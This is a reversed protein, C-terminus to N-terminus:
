IEWKSSIKRCYEEHQQIVTTDDGNAVAKELECIIEMKDGYAASKKTQLADFVSTVQNPYIVFTNEPINSVDRLISTGYFVVVSYFPIDKNKHFRQKLAQIHGDNQKVPNYFRHKERGYALVQTWQEQNGKGFIWGSYDKVEFVIIGAKTAVVVDIQSYKGETKKVYLDHYIAKPHIGHKLLQLVLERESWTGRDLRTVTALLKGDERKQKITLYIKFSIAIFLAVVAVTMIIDTM